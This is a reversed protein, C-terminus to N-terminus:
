AAAFLESHVKAKTLGPNFPLTLIESPIALRHELSRLSGDIVEYRHGGICMRLLEAIVVASTGAGVFAAGVSRGALTTLGCQDVGKAALSQYAPQSLVAEGFKRADSPKGWRQRAQRSSPFCHVQFALYEETGLGLGAELVQAFGVDELVARAAENDVGCLAVRPEEDDVRFNAAFRREQIRTQFGREECWEAMARTKKRGLISRYTLPSTSDNARVLSDFDQLVLLMEAPNEYPLFGLTWLFAQGLHGLGIVWLQKPLWELEPGTEQDNLWSMESDPRWLSLGVDRRGARANHGRVCQFAESVAAAGAFVGSPTFEQVEALRRGDDEPVVGARWGDYTVRLAFDTQRDPLADGIIITPADSSGTSALAGQLDTVAEKVTGCRRWPILLAADPCSAVEVGGLFCRQGVNVATLLAAQKTPSQAIDPGVSIRLRYQRFLGLAEEPTAAEGSDMALKVSRNLSDSMEQANM